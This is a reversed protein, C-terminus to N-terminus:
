GATEEWREEEAVAEGILQVMELFSRFSQQCGKEKWYLIGQCAYHEFFMMRLLFTNRRGERFIHCVAVGPYIEQVCPWAQHDTLALPLYREIIRRSKDTMQPEPDAMGSDLFIILELFSHFVFRQGNKRNILSGQWSAHQRQRVRLLYSVTEGECHLANEEALKAATIGTRNRPRGFFRKKMVEGPYHMRGFIQEVTETMELFSSFRWSQQSASHHLVGEVGDMGCREVSIIFIREEEKLTSRVSIAM